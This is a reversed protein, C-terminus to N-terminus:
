LVIKYRLLFYARIRAVVAAIESSTLEVSYHAWLAMDATGEFQTSGPHGSGIRFPLNSFARGFNPNDNKLDSGSTANICRNSDANTIDIILSWEGINISASPTSIPFTSPITHAEDTYRAATKVLTAPGANWYLLTGKASDPYTGYFAPSHALDVLTDRSRIVSFITQTPADAVQTELFNAQGKFQIYEAFEVPTGRIQADGKGGRAYNTAAKAADTNLFHWAELNRTVPPVFQRLGSNEANTNKAIFATGM